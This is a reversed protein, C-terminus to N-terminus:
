HCEVLTRCARPPPDETLAIFGRWSTAEPRKSLAPTTGSGALEVASACDGPAAAPLRRRKGGGPGRRAAGGGAPEAATACDGPAAASVTRMERGASSARKAGRVANSM